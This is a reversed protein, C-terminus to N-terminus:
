KYLFFDGDIPPFSMRYYRGLRESVGSFTRRGRGGEVRIFFKFEIASGGGGSGSLLSADLLGFSCVCIWPRTHTHTHAHYAHDAM